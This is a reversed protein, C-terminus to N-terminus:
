FCTTTNGGARASFDLGNKESFRLDVSANGCVKFAGGICGDWFSVVENCGPDCDGFGLGFGLSASGTASAMFNWGLTNNRGGEVQICMSASINVCAIDLVCAEVGMDFGGGFAIRYANEDFNLLLSANYGYEFWAKASVVFLDFGIGDDKSVGVHSAVNLYVGSFKESMYSDPANEFYHSVLDERHKPNRLGVAIAIEGHNDILGLLKMETGCGLFAFEDGKKASLLLTGQITEEVLGELPSMQLNIQITFTLDPGNFIVEAHGKKLYTGVVVDAYGKLVGASEVHIGVPNLAVLTGSGLLSIRGQVDVSFGGNPGGSVYDFGGGIGELTVPGGIPVPPINAFFKAGLEIGEPRKYYKFGITGNIPTGPIGLSGDGEFGNNNFSLLVSANVVPVDLKVGVKAVSFVPGSSGPRINIDGVEFKLFSLDAKFQGQLGISPTNDKSNIILNTLAFGFPGVNTHYDAPAQVSFDGNTLVEFSPLQLPKELISVNIKLSAKGTLHYVSSAGVRGFSLSTGSSNIKALSLINIGADPIDFSGGFLGAKAITLNSFNIQSTGSRPINLALSGGIKFGDENFILDQISAKWSAIELAPLNDTQLLVASVSLARNIALKSIPISLKKIPAIDPTGISGTFDVGDKDVSATKLAITFGYLQGNIDGATTLPFSQATPQEGASSFLVINGALAANSGSVSWGRYGQIADWAISIKGTLQGKGDSARAFTIVDAGTLKVPLYGFLKLPLETVDTKVMNGAPLPNGSGDFSVILNSFPIRTEGPLTFVNKDTPTLRVFNGSWKEQGAGAPTSEDLEIAFGLLSAYNRGNGGTLNLDIIKNETISAASVDTGVYGQKRAGVKHAGPSTYFAYHGAGNTAIGSFDQDDLLIRADPLPKGAASVTGSIMIGKKLTLLIVAERGTEDISLLKQEAVYVSGAPPILTLTATGGFGEYYWEGKADTVNTSDFVTLRVGAIPNGTGDEVVRFRAKGVIKNLYGIDKLDLAFERPVEYQSGPANTAIGFAVALGSNYVATLQNNSSANSQPAAIGFMAATFTNGRSISAQVTQSQSIRSLTATQKQVQTLGMWNSAYGTNSTNNTLQPVNITVNKVVYGEKELSIIHTGPYISFQFIGDPGTSGLTTGKFDIRANALPKGQDDVVRGVVDAVDGKITFDVHASAGADMPVSAKSDQYGQAEILFRSFDSPTHIVEVTIIAGKKLPPLMITYNGLEDTTTTIGKSDDPVPNLDPLIATPSLVAQATLGKSTNAAPQVMVPSTLGQSSGTWVLAQLTTIGPDSLNQNTWAPTNVNVRVPEAAQKFLDNPDIGPTRDAKKYTVRVQAGAVPVKGQEGMPFSVTGSVQAPKHTPHYELRGQFIKNQPIPANVVSISSSVNRYSSSAPILKIYLNGGFFLRGGGKVDLSSLLRLAGTGGGATSLVSDAAVEIMQRGDVTVPSTKAAGNLGENALWPRDELEKIDRYIHFGYGNIGDTLLSDFVLKPFLRLTKALLTYNGLDAGPDNLVTLPVNIETHEFDATNISLILRTAGSGSGYAPDLFQLDFNGDKDTRGTALLIRNSGTAMVAQLTVPAGALIFREAATDPTIDTYSINALSAGSGSLIGTPLALQPANITRDIVSFTTKQLTQDTNVAAVTNYAVLPTIATQLAFATKSVTSSLYPSETITKLAPDTSTSPSANIQLPTKTQQILGGSGTYLTYSATESKKFAWSLHGKLKHDAYELTPGGSPSQGQQGAPAGDPTGYTFQVVESRGNNRFTASGMPDSAVIIMAYTRGEQLQPQQITYLFLPSGKVTTEFFPTSTSLIADYPNRQGFVEVIRILYETSPPAGPPTTWRIPITQVATRFLAEENYPNLIMPPELTSVTFINSCGIPDEDSLPQNTAADIARICLQYTGEPLGQEGFVSSKISTNGSVYVLNNADFLYSAEIANLTRNALPGLEINTPPHYNKPTAVLVGNDGTLKGTLYVTRTTQSLNTLTITVLGPTSNFQYLKTPYHGDPLRNVQVRISIDQQASLSLAGLLLLFTLIRKAFFANLMRHSKFLFVM